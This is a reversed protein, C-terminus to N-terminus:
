KMPDFLMTDGANLTCEIYVGKNGSVKGELGCASVIREPLYFGWNKSEEAHAVLRMLEGDIIEGSIRVEQSALLREFRATKFQTGLGNLLSTGDSDVQVFISHMAFVIAGSSTTFWPIFPLPHSDRMQENPSLFPGTSNVTESLLEYGEDGCGQMFYATAMMAAAWMWHSGDYSPLSGAKVNRETKLAEHMRALTERAKSSNVDIAFPFIPGVQAIHWYDAEAADDVTYFAKGPMSQRLEQAMSSWKKSRKADIGLKTAAAAANELSRIAAAITFIGNSVPYHAEDFDTVRRTKLIGNEDRIMVDQVFLEACGRLLPYFNRLDDDDGQYLYYRWATESFQGVHLREDMWSGYPGGEEGKETAEWPFRAAEGGGYHLALPLTNLRFNPIRRALDLYGGSLLALFPYLEDHFTRGEWFAPMYTPPISWPSANCRIGYLASQRLDTLRADDFEVHSTSWFDAWGRLHEDMLIPLRALPPFHTFRRRDSLMLWTSIEREQGAELRMQHIFSGGNASTEIRCEPFSQLRVEGIQHNIFYMVSFDESRPIVQLNIREGTLEPRLDEDISTPFAYDCSFEIEIAEASHNKLRTHFILINETLCVLSRTVEELNGHRLSSIILGKDYDLSQAWDKDETLAGNIKLQRELGGYRILAYTPTNMRRGAWAIMRQGQAGEQVQGNHYGTPGFKTVIEGNGALPSSYKEDSSHITYISVSYGKM